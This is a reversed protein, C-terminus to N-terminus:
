DRDPHQRSALHILDESTRTEETKLEPLEHLTKFWPLRSEIGVQRTFTITAPDDLTGAALDIFDDGAEQMALPTGCKPCFSRAVRESSHFHAPEARTWTFHALPVEIFAAGWNGFAKQCM